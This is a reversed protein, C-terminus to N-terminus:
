NRRFIGALRSLVTQERPQQSGSSATRGLLALVRTQADADAPVAINNGFAGGDATLERTLEAQPLCAVVLRADLTTDQGSGTAIDWGHILFDQFLQMAYESGPTPGVSLHTTRDVAGPQSIVSKTAAVSERFARKPDDGVVDGEFRQGVDAITAGQFLETAWLAEYTVHNVVDRTSWVGIAINGWTSEPVGEASKLCSDMAALLLEGIDHGAEGLESM